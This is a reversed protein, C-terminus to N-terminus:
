YESAPGFYGGDNARIIDDRSNRATLAANSKGDPGLSYLDYDSNIPVLFQDKRLIGVSPPTQGPPTAIRTYVYPRGWPDLVKDMGVEALTAPLYGKTALFQTIATQIQHMEDQSSEERAEQMVRVYVPVTITSLTAIILVVISIEILTFARAAPHGGDVRGVRAPV